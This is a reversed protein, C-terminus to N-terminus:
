DTANSEIVRVGSDRCVQMCAQKIAFDQMGSYLDPMYFMKALAWSILKCYSFPCLSFLKFTPLEQKGHCM